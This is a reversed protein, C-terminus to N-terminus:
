STYHIKVSNFYTLKENKLNFYNNVLISNKIKINKKKFLNIITDSDNFNIFFLKSLNFFRIKNIFKKEYIINAHNNFGDITFINYPNEGSNIIYKTKKLLFNTKNRSIFGLNKIDKAFLEDGIVYINCDIKLLIKLIKDRLFNNKVSYNRNYILLDISKNKCRKKINILNVLYNFFTKKKNYKSVLKKLLETSFFVRNQRFYLLRINLIFLINNLYKRLFSNIGVVKNDFIFGTIPGLHTKTPLFLFLFINWLPLFNLFCVGRGKLYSTWLYFIGIIPNLYNQFVNFNLKSQTKNIIKFSKLVGNHIVFNGDPSKVIIKKKKIMSLNKIYHRALIGEGRNPSFDCAWCYLDFKANLSTMNNTTM